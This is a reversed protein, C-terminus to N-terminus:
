ATDFGFSGLQAAPVPPAPEPPAAEVVVIPAPAPMPTTACGAIITTTALILSLKHM